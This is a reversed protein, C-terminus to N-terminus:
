KWPPQEPLYSEFEAISTKEYAGAYMGEFFKNLAERYFREWSAEEHGPNIPYFLVGNSKAAQLDGPADGIMLIKEDAYKGKAAYRLHETKTGFEQGAILRVHQALGHEQWERELAELPTQSVVMVDAHKTMKVLSERMLPFPSMGYVIDTVAGNVAVTWAYATSIIDDQTEKAYKELTPNGMKSEKQTWELLPMMDPIAVNRALVEPRERLLEMSRLLAIFRNCGRTTSYLNVFEWVERAYKSIAQLGWHKIFNPCFCEKQKIEMTDFACGDSDIGIFFEHTPSLDALIEQPNEM